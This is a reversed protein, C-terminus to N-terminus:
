QFRFSDLSVQIFSFDRIINITHWTYCLNSLVDLVFVEFVCSFGVLLLDFMDYLDVPVSPVNGLFMTSFAAM